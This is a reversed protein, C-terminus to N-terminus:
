VRLSLLATGLWLVVPCYLEAPSVGLKNCFSPSFLLKSVNWEPDSPLPQLTQSSVGREELALWPATRSHPRM